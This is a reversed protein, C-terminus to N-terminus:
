TIVTSDPFVFPPRDRAVESMSCVRADQEQQRDRADQERQRDRADQELSVNGLLRVSTRPPPNYVITTNAADDDDDEHDSIASPQQEGTLSFSLCRRTSPDSSSRPFAGPTGSVRSSGKGSDDMTFATFPYRTQICM